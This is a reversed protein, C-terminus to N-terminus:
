VQSQSLSTGLSGKLALGNPKCILDQNSPHVDSRAWWAVFSSAAAADRPPWFLCTSYTLTTSTVGDRGAM